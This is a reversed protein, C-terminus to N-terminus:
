DEDWYQTKAKRFTDPRAAQTEFQPQDYIREGFLRRINMATLDSFSSTTSDAALLEYRPYPGIINVSRMEVEHAAISAFPSSDFIVCHDPRRELRLAAGLLQQSDEQYGSSLSVCRDPGILGSLGAYALVLDVQERELYSVIGCQMDVELLSRIWQDGGPVVQVLPLSHKDGSSASQTQPLRNAWSQRRIGLEKKYAEVLELVQDRDSAWDFGTEIAEEPGVSLAFLVQDMDPEPLSKKKAVAVWSDFATRFIEDNSPGRTGHGLSVQAANAADRAAQYIEFAKNSRSRLENEFTSVISQVQSDENTWRFFRGIAEKPDVKMAVEIMEPTPSNYGYKCGTGEWASAHIELLEQTTLVSSQSQHPQAISTKRDVQDPSAAVTQGTLIERLRRRFLAVMGNVTEQDDSWGFGDRAAIEPDNIVFAAMVEDPEPPEVNYTKAVDQWALYHAEMMSAEDLTREANTPQVSIVNLKPSDSEQNNQLLNSKASVDIPKGEPMLFARYSQVMKSIEVPDNSWKFAEQIAVDPSLSAARFAEGQSPPTRGFAQATLQWAKATSGVAQKDDQASSKLPSFSGLGEAGIALSGTAKVTEGESTKLGNEDAWEQLAQRLVTRHRMAINKCELVDDTWFFVNKVALEPRIVAARRVDDVEPIKHAFENAVRTWAKLQLGTLDVLVGELRFVAGFDKFPKNIRPLYQSVGTSYVSDKHDMLSNLEALDLEAYELLDRKRAAFSASGWGGSQRQRFTEDDYKYDAYDDTEYSRRGLVDSIDIGMSRRGGSRRQEYEHLQRLNKDYYDDDFVEDIESGLFGGRKNRSKRAEENEKRLWAPMNASSSDMFRGPRDDMEQASQEEEDEDDDEDSSLIGGIDSFRREDMVRTRKPKPRPGLSGLVEEAYGVDDFSEASEKLDKLEKGAEEDIKDLSSRVENEKRVFAEFSTMDKLKEEPNDRWRGGGAASVARYMSDLVDGDKVSSRTLDDTEVSNNTQPQSAAQSQSMTRKTRSPRPGISSLLKDADIDGDERLYESINYNLSQNIVFDEGSLGAQERKAREIDQFDEWQKRIIDQEEKTRANARRFMAKLRQEDFSGLKSDDDMVDDLIDENYDSFFPTNPQAQKPWSSEAARADGLSRQDRGSFFPTDPPTQIRQQRDADSYPSSADSYSPLDDWRDDKESSYKKFVDSMDVPGSPSEEEDDSEDIDLYDRTELTSKLFEIEKELVEKRGPDATALLSELAEISMRNIDQRVEKRSRKDTSALGTDKLDYEQWEFPLKPGRSLGSADRSKTERRIYDKWSDLRQLIEQEKEREALDGQNGVLRTAISRYMQWEKMTGPKISGRNSEKEMRQRLSDINEELIDLIAEGGEMDQRTDAMQELRELAWLDLDQGPGPMSVETSMKSTEQAAKRFAEEEYRLFDDVLARSAQQQEYEAESEDILKQVIENPKEDVTADESSMHSKLEREYSDIREKARQERTEAIEREMDEKFISEIMAEANPPTSEPENRRQEELQSTMDKMIKEYRRTIEQREEDFWSDDIERKKKRKGTFTDDDDQDDADDDDDYGGGGGLIDGVSPMGQFLNGFNTKFRPPNPSEDASGSGIKNENGEGTGRNSWSSSLRLSTLSHRLFSRSYPSSSQQEPRRQQLCLANSEYRSLIKANKPVTFASGSFAAATTSASGFTSSALALCVAFVCSLMSVQRKTSDM